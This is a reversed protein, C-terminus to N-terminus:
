GIRESPMVSNGKRRRNMTARRAHPQAPEYGNRQQQQARAPGRGAKGRWLGHHSGGMRQRDIRPEVHQATAARGHIGRNGHLHYQADDLRLSRAQAAAAEHQVVVARCAGHRDIVAPFRRRGAGRGRHEEIAVAMREAEALRRHRANGDTHGPRQRHQLEGVLLLALQGPVLQERRGDRDRALTERHRRAKGRPDLSYREQAVVRVYARGVEVGVARRLFDAVPHAIGCEGLRHLQDGILAHLNEVLTGDSGLHHLANVVMHPGAGQREGVERIVPRDLALRHATGISNQTTQPTGGGEDPPMAM